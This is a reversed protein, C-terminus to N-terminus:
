LVSIYILINRYKMLLALLMLAEIKAFNFFDPVLFSVWEDKYM